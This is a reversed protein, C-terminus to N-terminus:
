KHECTRTTKVDPTAEYSEGRWRLRTRTEVYCNPRSEDRDSALVWLDQWGGTKRRTPDLAVGKAYNLFGAKGYSGNGCNLLVYMECGGSRSCGTTLSVVRDPLGDGNLDEEIAGRYSGMSFGDPDLYELIGGMKRLTGTILDM